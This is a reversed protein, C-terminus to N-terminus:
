DPQGIQSENASSISEHWTSSNTGADAHSCWIRRHLWRRIRRTGLKLAIARSGAIQSLLHWSGRAAM